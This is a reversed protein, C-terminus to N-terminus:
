RAKGSQSPARVLRAEWGGGTGRSMIVSRGMDLSSHVHHGRDRLHAGFLEPTALVSFFPLRQFDARVSGPEFMGANSAALQVQRQRLLRMRSLLEAQSRADEPPIFEGKLTIMADATELTLHYDVFFLPCDFEARSPDRLILNSLPWLTDPRPKLQQLTIEQGDGVPSLAAMVEGTGRAIDLRVGYFSATTASSAGALDRTPVYTIYCGSLSPPLARSVVGSAGHSSSTIALEPDLVFDAVRRPDGGKLVLSYVGTPIGEWALIGQQPLNRRLPEEPPTASPEDALPKKWVLDATTYDCGGPTRALDLRATARTLTIPDKVIIEGRENPPLAALPVELWGPIELHDTLRERRPGPGKLKAALWDGSQLTTHEGNFFISCGSAPIPLPHADDARIGRAFVVLLCSQDSIAPSSRPSPEKHFGSPNTVVSRGSPITRLLVGAVVAFVGCLCVLMIWHVRKCIM